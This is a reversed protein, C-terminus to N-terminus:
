KVPPTKKKALRTRIRSLTEMNMNLYSAIFMLPIRNVLHGNEEVFFEYRATAKSLRCIFARSEAYAYYLEAIKRGMQNIEPFLAYCEELGRRDIVVLICDEIASINELTPMQLIFSRISSVLGNESTIWTTIERKEDMIYGRLVGEAVFYINPCHNGAMHLLEGKKLTIVSFKGKLFKTAEKSLPHYSKIYSFLAAEAASAKGSATKFSQLTPM